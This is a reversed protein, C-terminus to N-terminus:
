FLWPEDPVYTGRDSRSSLCACFAVRRAFIMFANSKHTNKGTYDAFVRLGGFQAGMASSAM